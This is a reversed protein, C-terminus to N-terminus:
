HHVGGGGAQIGGGAWGGWGGGVGGELEACVRKAVSIKCPPFGIPGRGEGGIAGAGGVLADKSYNFVLTPPWEGFGGGGRVVLSWLPFFRFKCSPFGPQAMKPVCVKPDGGGGRSLLRGAGWGGGGFNEHPYIHQVGGDGRNSQYNTPPNCHLRASIPRRHLLGFM